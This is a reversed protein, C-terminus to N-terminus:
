FLLKLQTFDRKGSEANVIATVENLCRGCRTSATTIQQVETLSYGPNKKIVQRIEKDSVQNCFCIISM